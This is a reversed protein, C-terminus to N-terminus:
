GGAMEEFVEDSAKDFDTRYLDTPMPLLVAVQLQMRKAVRAVLRDAGEALPTLIMLPLDPFRRRLGVLFREVSDELLPVEAASLDRHGTVGIVLPVGHGRIAAPDPWVPLAPESSARSTIKTM